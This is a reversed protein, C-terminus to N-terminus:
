KKAKPCTKVCGGGGDWSKGDGRLCAACTKATLKKGGCTRDSWCTASAQPTAAITMATFAMATFLSLALTTRFM